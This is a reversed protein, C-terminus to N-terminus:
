GRAEKERKAWCTPCLDVMCIPHGASDRNATFHWGRNCANTRVQHFTMDDTDYLDEWGCDDCYLQYTVEITM